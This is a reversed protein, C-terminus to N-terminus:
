NDGRPDHALPRSKPPMGCACAHAMRIGHTHWAQAMGITHCACHSTTMLVISAHRMYVCSMYMHMHMHRLRLAVHDDVRHLRVAEARSVAHYLLCWALTHQVLVTGGCRRM